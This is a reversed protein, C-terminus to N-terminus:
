YAEPGMPLAVLRDILPQIIRATYYADEGAYQWQAETLEAVHWGSKQMSKDMDYDLLEKVTDLLSAKDASQVQRLVMTCQLDLPQIGAELFHKYEFVANHAFLRRGEIIRKIADTGVSWLDFVWAREDTDAAFQALRMTSLTPHLAASSIGIFDEKAATETDVAVLGDEIALIEDAAAEAAEKTTIRILEM